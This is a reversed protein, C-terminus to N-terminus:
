GRMGEPLPRNLIERMKAHVTENGAILRGTEYISASPDPESVFGGAERVLLMGAAVDWPCLGTEWYGDFRGAAVYALALAASGTARIGAVQGMVNRQQFLAVGHKGKNLAPIGTTLLCEDMDRRAAVRLRRDNMFAGRGKEATFLEEAVPNYIVGAILEGARELALSVAFMPNSHLFNTTGDLPDIIWRYDSGTDIEGGEEMLFSYGPRAKNLATRLTKEAKLDAQSVFDGPGKRSVQLNELENFDRTLSRGAKTVAEVMVNLLASRAM